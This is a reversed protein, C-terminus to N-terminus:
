KLKKATILQPRGETIYLSRRSSPCLTEICSILATFNFPKKFLSVNKEKLEEYMDLETFGTIVIIPIRLNRNRVERVLEDGKMEPMCIDTVLLDFGKDTNEFLYLAQKGNEAYTVEFGISGIIQGLMKRVLHDDDAILVRRNAQTRGSM